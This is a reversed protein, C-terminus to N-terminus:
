SISGLFLHPSLTNKKSSNDRLPSFYKLGCGSFLIKTGRLLAKGFKRHAGSDKKYPLGGSTGRPVGRPIGRPSLMVAIIWFM